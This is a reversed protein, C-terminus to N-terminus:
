GRCGTHGLQECLLYGREVFVVFSLVLLLFLTIGPVLAPVDQALARPTLLRVAATFPLSLLVLLKYFVNSQRGAGALPYLVGQGLLALIPIYLLLQALNLLSLTNM